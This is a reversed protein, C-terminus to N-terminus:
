QLIERDKSGRSPGVIGRRELIDMIRAARNYGLRLARQLLSTSARNQSYIVDICKQILEEDEGDDENGMENSPQELKKMFDEFFNPQAQTKIHDLISNIEDDSVYAGQIRVTKSAGPALFLMDGNGLLKEAGICDLITNSDARNSVKFGIRAPINAKIVGTIVNVSPRQTAIICHIGAARALQTIRMIQEEVEKGAVLMLDNLEDVILVIYGLKDPIEEEDRPVSIEKNMDVHEEETSETSLLETEEEILQSQEEQETEELDPTPSLAQQKSMRKNFEEIKRVGVKAFLKYRKEMEDVLWQLALVAKKPDTVVPIIMHPLNNYQQLEVQKPDVMIFRLQEPSFKYLLSVIITNICVSKGNGPRGAILLHPAKALDTIVPRSYLNKGLAIPLRAKTKGWEQSELLERMVVPVKDKNPVEIGISNKGPIPALINISVAKLVAAINASLEIFRAMRVGNPPFFEYRTFTPGRTIPGPEVKIQFDAFIQRIAESNQKMEEQLGPEEVQPEVPDLLEISPYQYAM